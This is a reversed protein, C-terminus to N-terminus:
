KKAATKGAKRRLTEDSYKVGKGKYPEPARLKRIKYATNGLLENDISTLTISNGEVVATVGTPLPFVIPHSYGLNLNLNTGSLAARYGVGNIELKKTFGTKVGTVMNNALTRFLGWYASADKAERDVTVTLVGDAISVSAPAKIERKLEGKPGKVTLLTGEFTATVGEPLNIPMKGLRSM